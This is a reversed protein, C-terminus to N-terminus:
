LLFGALYYLTLGHLLQDFGITTYFLHDEWYQWGAVEKKYLNKKFSPKPHKGEEMFKVLYVLDVRKNIRLHASLKYLKWINWDILGHVLANALAFKWGVFLFIGFQISLHALLWRWESSKKKGMERSQLIFDAIFHLVLLKAIM